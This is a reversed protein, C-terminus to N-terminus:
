GTYSTRTVVRDCLSSYISAEFLRKLSCIKSAPSGKAFARVHTNTISYNAKGAKHEGARHGGVFIGNLARYFLGM